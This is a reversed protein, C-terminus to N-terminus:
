GSRRAPDEHLVLEPDPEVGRRRAAEHALDESAPPQTRAEAHEPPDARRRVRPRRQKLDM